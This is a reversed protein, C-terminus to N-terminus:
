ARSALATTDELLPRHFYFYAATSAAGAALFALQTLALTHINNWILTVFVSVVAAGATQVFSQCSAAMGRQTPFLDLALLTLSPFVVSMGLSYVLMPAVSWPVRPTMAFSIVLNIVAGVAMIGYGIMITRVPSLRGAFRSSLWAGGAMGLTTPGFLWLFATEPLKLHTMVFIPAAMIYIFIASFNLTMGFCAALFPPSSLVQIYARLLSGAHFPRRREVPLTEPLVRRCLEWALAGFLLLFVFVSRWGFTVQLWGGVVPAVAPAISFVLTVQSMLKQAEPGQFTDRIVARGVVMGAGAMMGQLARLLFLATINQAFICGATALVYLGTSWLIIPRRGLADSIAGHWLTMVAFTVMYSTLTQQVSLPSTNLTRAIEGMSPLYTDVSLPGVASLVALLPALGRHSIQAPHSTSAM